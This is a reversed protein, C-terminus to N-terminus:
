FSFFFPSFLFSFLYSFTFNYIETNALVQEACFAFCVYLAFIYAEFSLSSSNNALAEDHELDSKKTEEYSELFSFQPM